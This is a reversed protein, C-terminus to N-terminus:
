GRAGRGISPRGRDPFTLGPPPTALLVTRLGTEGASKGRNAKAPPTCHRARRRSLSREGAASLPHSGPAACSDERGGRSIRVQELGPAGGLPPRPRPPARDHRGPA